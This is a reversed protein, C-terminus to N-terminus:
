WFKWWPRRKVEILNDDHDIVHHQIIPKEKLIPAKAALELNAQELAIDIVSRSYGQNMLSFKLADVTYGKGLNKKYYDVLQRRYNLVM